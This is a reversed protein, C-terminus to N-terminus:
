EEYIYIYTNLATSTSSLSINAVVDYNNVYANYLDSWEGWTADYEGDRGESCKVVIANTRKIISCDQLTVKHNELGKEEADIFYKPLFAVAEDDVDYIKGDVFKSKRLDTLYKDVKADLKKESRDYVLRAAMFREAGRAPNMNNPYYFVAIDGPQIDLENLSSIEKYTYKGNTFGLSSDYNLKPVADWKDFDSGSPIEYTKPYVGFVRKAGWNENSSGGSIFYYNDMIFGYPSESRTKKVVIGGASSMTTAASDYDVYRVSFQAAVSDLNFTYFDMKYIQESNMAVSEIICQCLDYRNAYSCDPDPVMINVTFGPMIVMEGNSLSYIGSYDKYYYNGPKTYYSLQGDTIEYCPLTIEYIEMEDTLQFIVFKRGFMYRLVDISYENGDEGYKEYEKWLKEYMEPDDASSFDDGHYLCSEAINKIKFDQTTNYDRELYNRIEHPKDFLKFRVEGRLAGEKAIALVVGINTANYTNGGTPYQNPYFGSNKDYIFTGYGSIEGDKNLFMRYFSYSTMNIEDMHAEFSTSAKLRQMPNENDVGGVFSGTYSGGRGTAEGIVVEVTTRGNEVTKSSIRALIENSTIEINYLKDASLGEKIRLVNGATIKDFASEQNKDTKFIYYNDSNEEFSLTNGWKDSVSTKDTNLFDVFFDYYVNVAIIEYRSDGDNDILIVSEVDLGSEPGCSNLTGIVASSDSTFQGNYIFNIDYNPLRVNKLALEEENVTDKSVDETYYIKRNAVDFYDFHRGDIVFINNDCEVLCLARNIHSETKYFVKVNYGIYDMYNIDSSFKINSGEDSTLIFENDTLDFSGYLSTYENAAYIGERSNYGFVSELVTSENDVYTQVNGGAIYSVVPSVFLSNYLVNGAQGLSIYGDDSLDSSELVDLELALRTYGSLSYNYKEAKFDYGLARIIMRSFEDTSVPNSPSFNVFDSPKVIGLKGAIAVTTFYGSNESVDPFIVEADDIATIQAGSLKLAFNLADIRSVVKNELETDSPQTEFIGLNTLVDSSETYDSSAGATQFSFLVVLSTLIFAKLLTNKM